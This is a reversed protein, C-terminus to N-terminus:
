LLCCKLCVRPVKCRQCDIYLLGVPNSMQMSVGNCNQCLMWKTDRTWQNPGSVTGPTRWQFWRKKSHPDSFSAFSFPANLIKLVRHQKIYTHTCAYRHNLCKVMRGHIKFWSATHRLKLQKSATIHTYNKCKIYVNPQFTWAKLHHHDGLRKLRAM